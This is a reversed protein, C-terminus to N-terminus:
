TGQGSPCPNGRDVLLLQIFVLALLELRSPARYALYSDNTEALAAALNHGRNNATCGGAGDQCHHAICHCETRHKASTFMREIGFRRFVRMVDDVVARLLEHIAHRVGVANLAYPGHEFPPEIPHVVGKTLLVQLAVHIFEGVPEVFTINSHM